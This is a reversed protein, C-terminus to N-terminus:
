VYREPKQGFIECLACAQFWQPAGRKSCWRIQYRSSVFPAKTHTLYITGM